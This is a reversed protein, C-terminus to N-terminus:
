EASSAEAGSRSPRGSPGTEEALLLLGSLSVSAQLLPASATTVAVGIKYDYIRPKVGRGVLMAYRNDNLSLLLPRPWSWEVIDAKFFRLLMILSDKDVGVDSLLKHALVAVVQARTLKTERDVDLDFIAALVARAARQDPHLPCGLLIYFPMSNM